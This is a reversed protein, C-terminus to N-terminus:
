EKQEFNRLYHELKKIQLRDNNDWRATCIKKTKGKM